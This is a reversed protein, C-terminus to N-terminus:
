ARSRRPRSPEAPPSARSARGGTARAAVALELVKRTRREIDRLLVGLAQADEQEIGDSTIELLNGLVRLRDCEVILNDCVSIMDPANLDTAAGTATFVFGRFDGGVRRLRPPM